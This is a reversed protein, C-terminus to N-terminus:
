NLTAIIWKIRRSNVTELLPLNGTNMAVALHVKTYLLQESSASQYDLIATGM